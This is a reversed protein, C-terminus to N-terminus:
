FGRTFLRRAGPEWSGAGMWCQIKDDKLPRTFATLTCILGVGAQMYVVPYCLSVPCCRSLIVEPSSLLGFFPWAGNICTMLTETTGQPQWEAWLKSIREQKYDAGWGAFIWYLLCVLGVTFLTILDSPILYVDMLDVFMKLQHPVESPIFSSAGWSSCRWKLSRCTLWATDIKEFM